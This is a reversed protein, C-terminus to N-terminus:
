QSWDPMRQQNRVPRQPPKESQVYHIDQSTRDAFRRRLGATATQFAPTWRMPGASRTTPRSFNVRDEWQKAHSAPVQARPMAPPHRFPRRALASIRRRLGAAAAPLAPTWRMPGAPIPRSSKDRHDERMMPSQGDRSATLQAHSSTSTSRYRRRTVLFIIFCVVLLGLCGIMISLTEWLSLGTSDESWEACCM